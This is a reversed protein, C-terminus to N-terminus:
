WSDKFRRVKATADIAESPKIIGYSDDAFRSIARTLEARSGVEFDGVTYIDEGWHNCSCGNGGRWYYHGDAPSYFAHFTHWDYGGGNDLTVVHKWYTPLGRDEDNYVGYDKWNVTMGSDGTIQEM